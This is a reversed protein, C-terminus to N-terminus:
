KIYKVERSMRRGQTKLSIDCLMKVTLEKKLILFVFDTVFLLSTCFTHMTYYNRANAVLEFIFRDTNIYPAKIEWFKFPCACTKPNFGEIDFRSSLIGVLHL